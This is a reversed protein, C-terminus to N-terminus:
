VESYPLPQMIVNAISSPVWNYRPQGFLKYVEPTSFFRTEGEQRAALDPYAWMYTIRPLGEGVINVGYMVGTLGAADLLDAEGEMFMEAKRQHSGLTPQDYTRLEFLRAPDGALASPCHLRALGPLARILASKLRRFPPHSSDANIFADAAKTYGADLSLHGDLDALTELSDSGVLLYRRGLSEEGFWGRFVGVPSDTLRKLAPVLAESLYADLLEPSGTLRTDYERQLYYWSPEGSDSM